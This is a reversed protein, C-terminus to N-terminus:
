DQRLDLPVCENNALAAQCHGRVASFSYAGDTFPDADSRLSSNCCDIIILPEVAALHHLSSEKCKAWREQLPRLLYRARERISVNVSPQHDWNFLDPERTTSPVPLTRFTPVVM